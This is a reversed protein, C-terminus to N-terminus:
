LAVQAVGRATPVEVGASQAAALRQLVVTMGAAFWWGKLPFRFVDCQLGYILVSIMAIQCAVAFWYLDTQGLQRFVSATRFSQYLLTGVFTFFLSFGVVGLELLTQLYENHVSTREPSREAVRRPIELENAMGAGLLWHDRVVELGAKWYAIRIRLTASEKLTYNTPNLVREFTSVDVLLLSVVAVVVGAAMFPARIVLLGRMWCLAATVVFFVFTARTNTLLVNYTIAALMGWLWLKWPWRLRQRLFFAVFPVALILNIGYVASHTTSGVARKVGTLEAEWESNDIAVAKWRDEIEMGLNMDTEIPTGFHWDYATFLCIAFTAALWLGTSWRATRFDQTLSTALFLFLLNSLLQGGARRSGDYDTSYVITILGYATYASCLWFVAGLQLKEKRLLQHVLLSGVTLLGVIRMLSITFLSSDDTFRGFRELPIMLASLWLGAIPYALILWTAVIGLLGALALKYSTLAGLYILLPGMALCTVIAFVRTKM